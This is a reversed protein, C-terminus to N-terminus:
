RKWVRLFAPCFGAQLDLRESDLTPCSQSVEWGTQVAFAFVKIWNLICCGFKEIGRKGCARDRANPIKDALAKAFASLRNRASNLVGNRLKKGRRTVRQPAQGVEDNLRANPVRRVQLGVSFSFVLGM